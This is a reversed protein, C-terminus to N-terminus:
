RFIGIWDIDGVTYPYRWNITIDRDQPGVTLWVITGDVLHTMTWILCIILM